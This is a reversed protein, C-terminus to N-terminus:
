HTIIGEVAKEDLEKLDEENLPDDINPMQGAPANMRDTNQRAASSASPRIAATEKAAEALEDSAEIKIEKPDEISADLNVNLSMFERDPLGFAVKYNGGKVAPFIFYGDSDTETKEVESGDSGNILRVIVGEVGQKLHLLYGAIESMKVFPFDIVPTSGRRPILDRHDFKPALYIDPISETLVRLRMPTEGLNSIYTIGDKNTTGRDSSTSAVFDVNEIPQDGADFIGNNNNDIFARAGLAAQGGTRPDVLHYQNNNDPQLAHRLGITFAYDNDTTATANFDLGFKKYDRSLTVNLQDVESQFDHIGDLRISTRGNFNRQASFGLRRYQSTGPQPDLDYLLSGRFRIGKWGSAAATLEGQFSEGIQNQTLHKVLDNNISIGLFNFSVTHEINFEDAQDLYDIKQLRLGMNFKNFGRYLSLDSQSQIDQNEVLFNKYVTHSLGLNTGFLRTNVSSEYASRGKDAQLIQQQLNLGLVSLSGSVTVGSARTTDDDDDDGLMTLSNSTLHNISVDAADQPGSFVSTGLTFNNTFGHFVQASAGVMRDKQAYQAFPLLDSRPMGAAMDYQTAGKRLMRSGRTIERNVVTKQGQPGYLIVQFNNFGSNLDLNSFSYRGDPGIQQFAIFSGNRYLEADYGVPADGDLTFNGTNNAYNNGLRSDSSILVGAGSGGGVFLPVSPFSVDGFAIKGAHLPGLMKNLVDRRQLTARSGTIQNGGKISDYRGSFTYSAEMHGIDQNGQLSSFATMNSGSNNKMYGISNNLYLSPLSFKKYPALESNEPKVPEYTYTKGLKKARSLRELREQFPLKEKPKIELTLQSMDFSIAINLWKNISTARVYIDGEYIIAEDKDLKVRNGNFLVEGSNLDLQFANDETKIFGEARKDGANVKIPLTMIESFSGLPILVNELTQGAPLFVTLSDDIPIGDVRLGVNIENDGTLDVSSQKQDSTQKAEQQQTREAVDVGGEAALEPTLTNSRLLKPGDEQHTALDTSGEAAMALFGSNLLIWLSLVIARSFAISPKKM